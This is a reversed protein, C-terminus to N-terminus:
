SRVRVHWPRFRGEAKDVEPCPSAGHQSLWDSGSPVGSNRVMRHLSAPRAPCPAGQGPLLM